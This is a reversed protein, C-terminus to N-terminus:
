RQALVVGLAVIAAGIAQPWSWLGGLAVLILMVYFPAVNTHFSALAIGLRDVSAIWLFQSIAMGGIGYVALLGLTQADFIQDPGVAYGLARAIIFTVSTIVLGGCLTITTRGIPSQGGFDRVAVYSGWSFLTCSAVACGIGLWLNGPSGGLPVSGGTAVIGGGVSAVLGIIFTVSLRKREAVWEIVSAAIPSSAAIIAVTVPDTLSQAVIMLWAGGGFGIAGSLLGWGWRAGLVARLGDLAIWVPILVALAICFRGTVLALPDWTNLLVEAAPFGAAWVIMSTVGYLNGALAKNPPALTHSMPVGQGLRVGVTKRTKSLIDTELKQQCM